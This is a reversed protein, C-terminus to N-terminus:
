AIARTSSRRDHGGWGCRRAGIKGSHRAACGRAKAARGRTGTSGLVCVCGCVSCTHSGGAKALDEGPWLGSGSRRGAMAGAM